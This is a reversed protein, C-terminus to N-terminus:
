LLKKEILKKLRTSSTSETYPFFVMTAGHAELFAKKELWRPDHDYDSGSFQVDFHYMKWADETDPRDKPIEVVEDVYRCARVMDCREEFPVFPEVKKGVRVGYDTVVGVILYDCQEKARRLLNLHGIHFLDFVGAVYGIHFKKREEIQRPIPHLKRRYVRNPDYVSYEYIGMENLQAAVTDYDRICILVRYEGHDLKQLFAPSCIEIGRIYEGWRKENNDVIAYVPYSDGYAEWFRDLYRGAGFIILKKGDIEELANDIRQYIYAPYNMRIRNRRVTERNRRYKRNYSEFDANRRLNEIFEKDYRVWEERFRGLGLFDIMEDPSFEQYLEPHQSYFSNVVRILIANAPYDTRCFEQDFFVFEGDIYFSNLPILDLYGRRLTAGRGDGIDSASWDSSRLVCDKFRELAQFFAAKDEHYLRKLYAQGTEADIYPMVYRNKELRGHVVKLGHAALDESASAIQRLRDYGEPYMARKEVHKDGYVITLLADERKRDASITVQKVDSLQGDCKCEILFANAMTHFLGNELFSRYLTEEELFVVGPYNYVPTIRGELDERNTFDEALLLSPHELSSLVSFFKMQEWGAGRLMDKIEARSYMRGRFPENGSAYVYQYNEVSDFNQKTYPDRDGCFYRVGLRNNMGLLLTGGPALLEIWQQLFAQPHRQRELDAISVIYDFEEKVRDPLSEEIPICVVRKDDAQIGGVVPDTEEGIYLVSCGSSFNYWKLLGHQVEALLEERAEM